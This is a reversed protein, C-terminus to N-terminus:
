ICGMKWETGLEGRETEKKPHGFFVDLHLAEQLRQTRLDGMLHVSKSFSRQIQRSESISRQHVDRRPPRLPASTCLYEPDSLLAFVLTLRFTHDLLIHNIYVIYSLVHHTMHQNHKQLEAFQYSAM